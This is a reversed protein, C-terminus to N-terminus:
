GKCWEGRDGPWTRTETRAEGLAAYLDELWQKEADNKPPFSVEWDCSDCYYWMGADGQFVIEGSCGPEECAVGTKEVFPKSTKAM